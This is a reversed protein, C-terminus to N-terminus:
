LSPQAEQKGCCKKFKKGSGCPCPKNRGTNKTEPALPELDSSQPSPAPEPSPWLMSQTMIPLSSDRRTNQTSEDPPEPLIEKQSEASQPDAPAPQSHTPATQQSVLQVTLEPSIDSATPVALPTAATTPTIEEQPTVPPPPVGSPQLTASPMLKELFKDVDRQVTRVVQMLYTLESDDKEKELIDLHLLDRMGVWEGDLDIALSPNPLYFGHKVRVFLRRNGPSDRFVENGALVRTIASRNRRRLPIVSEPFHALAHVFDSTEFAPIDTRIKSRVVFEFLALISHMLFFEMRHSDIKVLRDGVRVKLSAPALLPYLAGLSSKAYLPNQYAARM